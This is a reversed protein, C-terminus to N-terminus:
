PQPSATVAERYERSSKLRAMYHIPRRETRPFAAGDIHGRMGCARQCSSDPDILQVEQGTVALQLRCHPDGPPLEPNRDNFVFRGASTFRAIGYLKCQHGNYFELHTRFYLSDKGM